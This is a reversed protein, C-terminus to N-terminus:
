ADPRFAARRLRQRRVLWVVMVVGVLMAMYQWRRSRQDPFVQDRHEGFYAFQEQMYRISPEVLSYDAATAKAWLTFMVQSGDPLTYLATYMRHLVTSAGETETSEFELIFGTSSTHYYGTNTLLRSSPLESIVQDLVGEVAYRLEDSTTVAEDPGFKSKFISFDAAYNEHILEIPYDAPDGLVEWGDVVPMRCEDVFTLLGAASADFTILGFCLLFRVFFTM